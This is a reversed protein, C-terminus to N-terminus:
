WLQKSLKFRSALNIGISSKAAGSKSVMSIITFYKVLTMWFSSTFVPHLLQLQM